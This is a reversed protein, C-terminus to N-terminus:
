GSRRQLHMRNRRLSLLMSFTTLSLWFALMVFGISVSCLIMYQGGTYPVGRAMADRHQTLLLCFSVLWPNAMMGFLWIFAALREMGRSGDLVLWPQGVAFSPDELVFRVRNRILLHLVLVVLAIVYMAGMPSFRLEVTPVPVTEALLKREIQTFVAEASAGNPLDIHLRHAIEKLEGLYKKKPNSINKEAVWEKVAKDLGYYWHAAQVRTLPGLKNSPLEIRTSEHAIIYRWRVHESGDQPEFGEHFSALRLAWHVTVAQEHEEVFWQAQLAQNLGSRRIPTFTEIRKWETDTGNFRKQLEKLHPSLTASATLGLAEPDPVYVTQGTFGALKRNGTGREKNTPKKKATKATRGAAQYAQYHSFARRSALLNETVEYYSVTVDVGLLTITLLVLSTSRASDLYNSSSM